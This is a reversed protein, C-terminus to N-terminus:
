VTCEAPRGFFKQCIDVRFFRRFYNLLLLFGLISLATVIGRLLYDPEPEILPKTNGYLVFSGWLYPDSDRQNIYNLKAERMAEAKDYGRNLFDYFQPTLEASAQDRVPWLNLVLSKAGSFSFARSFGLIGSGQIYGGSGSECSSLFVLDANLNLDFIEYAHILGDNVRGDSNQQIDPDNYLYLSSFLPNNDMVRSHTAMHIIRSNGAIERFNTESSNEEIFINSRQFSKLNNVSNLVEIPSFPLDALQQHGANRFNSIGFGAIDYDFDAPNDSHKKQLDALTNLYSISYKEIMYNATGFSQSTEVPQIPLIEIPIRYFEDDPVIYIHKIESPINGEFYTMYLEHLKKLDTTRYGFSAIAENITEYFASDHPYSKMTVGSRTIFFQFLQDEFKSFYIAMEGRKLLSRRSKIIEEYQSDLYRPFAQNVLRNRETVANTLDTRILNRQQDNGVAYRDRLSQIRVGLNYDLVLEEETLMNSKLAPNNYFGTRSIGRLRGSNALADVPNGSLEYLLTNLRFAESFQTRIHMHGTQHDSSQLIWDIIDRVVENSVSLAHQISGNEILLSIDVNHYQVRNYFPYTRVVAEDFLDILNQAEEIRGVKIFWQAYSMSSTLYGAPDNGSSTLEVAHKYYNEAKMHNGILAYTDALNSLIIRKDRYYDTENAIDLADKFYDLASKVDNLQDRYFYGKSLLVGSLESKLDHELAFDLAQTLYDYSLAFEKQLEHHRHLGLLTRLQIEHLNERIGIEFLKHQYLTYQDFSGIMLHSISIFRLLNLYLSSNKDIIGENYLSEYVELAADVKGILFLTSAYNMQSHIINNVNGLDYVIPLLAQEFVQLALSYQGRMYLPYILGAYLNYSFESSPFVSHKLLSPALESAKEFENLKAYGASLAQAKFAAMLPDRTYLDDFSDHWHNLLLLADGDMSEPIDPGIFTYIDSPGFDRIQYYGSPINRYHMKQVVESIRALEEETLSDIIEDRLFRGAEHLAFNLYAPNSTERYKRYFNEALVTYMRADGDQYESHVNKVIEIWHEYINRDVEASLTGAWNVTSTIGSFTILLTLIKIIRM